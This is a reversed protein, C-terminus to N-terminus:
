WMAQEPRSVNVTAVGSAPTLRPPPTAAGALAISWYYRRRLDQARHETDIPSGGADVVQALGCQEPRRACFELYGMPAPAQAGLGMISSQPPASACASLLSLAALSALAGSRRTLIDIQSHRM